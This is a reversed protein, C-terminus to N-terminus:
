GVCPSPGRPFRVTEPVEAMVTVLLLAVPRAMWAVMMFPLSVGPCVSADCTEM